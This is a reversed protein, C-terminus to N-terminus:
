NNGDWRLEYEIKETLKNLSIYEVGDHVVTTFGQEEDNIYVTREMPEYAYAPVLTIGMIISISILLSIIRKM